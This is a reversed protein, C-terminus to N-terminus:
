KLPTVASANRGLHDGLDFTNKSAGIFRCLGAVHVQRAESQVRQSAVEGAAPGDGQGAVPADDEAKLPVIDPVYIQDVVM